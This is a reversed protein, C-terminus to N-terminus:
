SPCDAKNLRGLHINIEVLVGECFCETFHEVVYRPVTALNISCLFNVMVDSLLAKALILDTSM